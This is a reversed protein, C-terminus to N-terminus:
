GPQYQFQLVIIYLNCNLSYLIHCFHVVFSEAQWQSCCGKTWSAEGKDKSICQEQLCPAPCIFPESFDPKIFASKLSILNLPVPLSHEGIGGCLFIVLRWQKMLMMLSILSVVMSGRRIWPQTQGRFFLHHCCPFAFSFCRMYFPLCCSLFYSWQGSYCHICHFHTCGLDDWPHSRQWFPYSQAREWHLESIYLHTQIGSLATTLTLWTLPATGQSVSVLLSSCFLGNWPDEPDFNYGHYLFIPWQNGSVTIEGSRLREKTRFSPWLKCLPM